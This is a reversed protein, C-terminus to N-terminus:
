VGCHGECENGFRDRRGEGGLKAEDLAVAEDLPMRLSHLYPEKAFALGDRMKADIEM